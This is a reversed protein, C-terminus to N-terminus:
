ATVDPLPLTQSCLVSRLAPAASPVVSALQAWIEEPSKTRSLAVTSTWGALAPAGAVTLGSSNPAIWPLPLRQSCLARKLGAPSNRRSAFQDSNDVPWIPSNAAAKWVVLLLPASGAM